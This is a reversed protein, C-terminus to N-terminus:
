AGDLAACREAAREAAVIERAAQENAEFMDQSLFSGKPVKKKPKSAKLRKKRQAFWEADSLAARTLFGSYPKHDFVVRPRPTFTEHALVDLQGKPGAKLRLYTNDHVGAWGECGFAKLIEQTTAFVYGGWPAKGCVLSASADKVIVLSGDPLHAGFAYYGEITQVIENMGGNGGALALALLESDCGTKTQYNATSSVIGNHSLCIKGGMGDVVMPHCNALGKASTAMRAHWVSSGDIKRDIAETSVVDTWPADILPSDLGGFHHPTAWRRFSLGKPGMTSFGFGDRDNRGMEKVVAKFRWHYGAPIANTVIALKCM